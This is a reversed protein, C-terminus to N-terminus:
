RSDKGPYPPRPTPNAVWGRTVGLNFCSYLEIEVGEEPAEHGTRPRVKVGRTHTHIYTHIYTHTHTRAHTHM